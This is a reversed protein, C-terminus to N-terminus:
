FEGGQKRWRGWNTKNFIRVGRVNTPPESALLPFSDAFARLVLPPAFPLPLLEVRRPTFRLHEGNELNVLPPLHGFFM